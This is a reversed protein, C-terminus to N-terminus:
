QLERCILQLGGISYSANDALGYRRKQSRLILGTAAQGAPCIVPEDWENCRPHEAGDQVLGRTVRLGPGPEGADLVLGLTPVQLALWTQLAIFLVAGAVTVWLWALPTLQTEGPIM